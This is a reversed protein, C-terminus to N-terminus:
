ETAATPRSGFLGTQLAGKTSSGLTDLQSLICHDTAWVRNAIYTHIYTHISPHISPHRDTQRDTQIYTHIYTHTYIYIYTYTYFFISMIYVCNYVSLYIYIYHISLVYLNVSAESLIHTAGRKPSGIHIYFMYISPTMIIISAPPSYPCESITLVVGCM